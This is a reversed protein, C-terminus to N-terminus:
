LRSMASHAPHIVLETARYLDFVHRDRNCRVSPHDDFYTRCPNAATVPMAPTAVVAVDFVVAHREDWPVFDTADNGRDAGAHGGKRDTVADCDGEDKAAPATALAQPRLRSDAFVLLLGYTFM